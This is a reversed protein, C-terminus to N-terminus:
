RTNEQATKCQLAARTKRFGLGLGGRGRVWGVGGGGGQVYLLFMFRSVFFRLARAMQKDQGLTMDQDQMAIEQNPQM